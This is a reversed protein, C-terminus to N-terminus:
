QSWSPERTPRRGARRLLPLTWALNPDACVRDGSDLGAGAPRVYIKDQLYRARLNHLLSSEHLESLMIMDDIGETTARHMSKLDQMKVNLVQGAYNKVQYEKGPM